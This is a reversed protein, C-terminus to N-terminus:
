KRRAEAHSVVAIPASIVKWVSVIARECAKQRKYGEGSDALVRGNAARLRWRWERKRDRYVQFCPNKASM